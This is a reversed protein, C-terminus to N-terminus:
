MNALYFEKIWNPIDKELGLKEMEIAIQILMEKRYKVSHKNERLDKVENYLDKVAKEKQRDHMLLNCKLGYIMEAQRDQERRKRVVWKSFGKDTLKFALSEWFDYKAM